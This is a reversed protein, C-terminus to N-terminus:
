GGAGGPFEPHAVYWEWAKILRAEGKVDELEFKGGFERVADLLPDPFPQVLLWGIWEKDLEVLDLGKFVKDTSKVFNKTDKFDKLLRPILERRKADPSRLLFHVMSWGQAYFVGPNAYYDPQKFEMLREFTVTLGDELARRVSRLRHWNMDGLRFGHAEGTQEDRAAMFFWDGLGEDMWAPMDVWSVTYFHFYQHWGEHSLVRVLDFTYASTALDFLEELRAREAETLREAAAPLLRLLPPTTRQGFVFGCDYGVLEKDTQNYYAVTGTDPPFGSYDCFGAKDEFVKLVFTELKRRTPLFDAYVELMDELHEGLRRATEAGIQSQVQYHETEIVSWGPPIDRKNWPGSKVQDDARATAPAVLLLPLLWARNM